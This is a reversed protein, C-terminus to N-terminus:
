SRLMRVVLLLFCLCLGIKPRGSPSCTDGLCHPTHLQQQTAGIRRKRMLESASAMRRLGRGGGEKEARPRFGGLSQSRLKSSGTMQCGSLGEFAFVSGTMFVARRSSTEM